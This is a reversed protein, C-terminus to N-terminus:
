LKPKKPSTLSDDDSKSRMFKKEAKQQKMITFIKQSLLEVNQKTSEEKGSKDIPNNDSDKEM